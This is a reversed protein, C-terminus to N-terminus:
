RSLDPASSPPGLDPDSPVAPSSISRSSPSSSPSEAPSSAGLHSSRHASRELPPSPPPSVWWRVALGGLGGALSRNGLVEKDSAKDRAKGTDDRQPLTEVAPAADGKKRTAEMRERAKEEEAPLLNGQGGESRGSGIFPFRATPGITM